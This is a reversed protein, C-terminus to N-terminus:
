VSLRLFLCLFYKIARTYFFKEKVKAEFKHSSCDYELGKFMVDMAKVKMFPSTENEFLYHM